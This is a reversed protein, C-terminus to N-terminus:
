RAKVKSNVALVIKKRQLQLSFYLIHDLTAVKGIKDVLRQNVAYRLKMRRYLANKEYYSVLDVLSEFTATGITFLRGEQRIRCHKIKGEARFADCVNRVVVPTILM